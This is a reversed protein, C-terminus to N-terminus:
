QARTDLGPWRARLAATSVGELRLRKHRSTAGAVIGVTSRPVGAAKAVLRVVAKNAAGDAPAATVRVRLEGAEDVGEVVDRSARPTVRVSITVAESV